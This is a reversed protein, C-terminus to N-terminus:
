FPRELDRLNLLPPELNEVTEFREAEVSTLQKLKSAPLGLRQAIQRADAVGREELLDIAQRMM